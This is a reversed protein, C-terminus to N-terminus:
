KKAATLALSPAPGDKPGDTTGELDTLTKTAPGDKVARMTETLAALSEKMISQTARDPHLRNETEATIRDRRSQISTLAAARDSRGLAHPSFRALPLEPSVHELLRRDWSPDPELYVPREDVLRTIARESPTESVSLDRLLIELAPERKLWARVSSPETLASLPVVLVDPRAGEAQAALFRSGLAKTHTLILARAEVEDFAEEAYTHAGDASTQSLIRMTDEASAVCGAVAIAAVLKSLPGAGFLRLAQASEATARLGLAGLPAVCSVAVLHLSLRASSVEAAEVWGAVTGGPVLLDALIAGVLPWLPRRDALGFVFGAAAALCWLVGMQLAWALPTTLWGQGLSTAQSGSVFLGPLQGKGALFLLSAASTLAGLTIAGTSLLNRSVMDGSFMFRPFGSDTKARASKQDSLPKQNSLPHLAIASLLLIAGCWASEVCLAGFLIGKQLARQPDRDLDNGLLFLLGILCLAAGVAGGGMITAESQLPLSFAAALAAGLALWPDLPSYGRQKRFLLHCLSLVCRGVVAAALAGPLAMRFDHSGVPVHLAMRALLTSVAGSWSPEGSLVSLVAEDSRFFPVGRTQSLAGALPLVCVLVKEVRGPGSRHKARVSGPSDKM